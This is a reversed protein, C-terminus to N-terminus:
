SVKKFSKNLHNSDYDFDRLLRVMFDQEFKRQKEEYEKIDKLNKMTQNGEMTTRDLPCDLEKIIRLPCDKLLCYVKLYVNIVKQSQGISINTKEALERIERRIDLNKIVQNDVLSRLRRISELLLHKYNDVNIKKNDKQISSSISRNVQTGRYFLDVLTDKLNEKMDEIKKNIEEENM